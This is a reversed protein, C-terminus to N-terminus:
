LQPLSKLNEYLNLLNEKKFHKFTYNNSKRRTSSLYESNELPTTMKHMYPVVKSIVSKYSSGTALTDESKLYFKKYLDSSSNPKLQLSPFDDKELDNLLNDDLVTVSFSYYNSHLKPSEKEAPIPM